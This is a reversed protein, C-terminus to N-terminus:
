SDQFQNGRSHKDLMAQAEEALLRRMSEPELVTVHSGWQLLWSLLEREHRIRFTLIMGDPRKEQDTVFFVYAEQVWRAIQEDVHVRVTLKFAESTIRQGNLYNELSFVSDRTFTQPSVRLHEIRSIRFNRIDKRLHCYAVLLWSQSVHVLGYPDASRKTVRANRTEGDRAHYTFQLTQRKFIARRIQQLTHIDEARTEPNLAVFRISERVHDVDQRLAASLVGAIKRGASQAATRYEGDFYKEMLDSGLLLMAGEDASFRLPPLFYDESLAYGFGPVAIIPVGAECLALVDRYVTRKSIEFTAALDEARQRGRSQLELIIALLRDTRNM